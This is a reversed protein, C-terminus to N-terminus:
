HKDNCIQKLYVAKVTKALFNLILVFLVVHIAIAIYLYFNSHAVQAMKYSAIAMAALPFTYAWWSLAFSLKIFKGVSVMMLLTMSLGFFYLVMGFQNLEHNNLALYSIFGVAPPAIFIFLTPILREQIPAHFIIRNVLISKVVLWFIIGISFFFWSLEIPAHHVGAIPVIINGVIPIFWAPNSHEPTFFDHHVWNYLVWYTLSLQLAAGIIWTYQSIEIYGLAYFAISLLLLSISITPVFNMKVPHELEAIVEKPFRMVKYSYMLILIVMLVLTFVFSIKSFIATTEYVQALSIFAISLGTLGMIMGFFSAPFYALNQLREIM